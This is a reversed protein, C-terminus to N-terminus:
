PGPANELGHEALQRLHAPRRLLIDSCGATVRLPNIAIRAADFPVRKARQRLRFWRRLRLRPPEVTLWAVAIYAASVIIATQWWRGSVGVSPLTFGMWDPVIVPITVRRAALRSVVFPLAIAAPLEILWPHVFPIPPRGPDDLDHRGDRAYWRFVFWLLHIPAVYFALLFLALGYSEDFQHGYLKLWHHGKFFGRLFPIGLIHLPLALLLLRLFTGGYFFRLLVYLPACIVLLLFVVLKRQLSLIM